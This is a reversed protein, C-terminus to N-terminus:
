NKNELCARVQSWHFEEKAGLGRRWWQAMTQIRVLWKGDKPIKLALCLHLLLCASSKGPCDLTNLSIKLLVFIVLLVLPLCPLVGPGAPESCVGRSFPTEETGREKLIKNIWALIVSGHM